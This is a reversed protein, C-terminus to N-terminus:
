FDQPCGQITRHLIEGEGSTEAKVMKGLREEISDAQQRGGQWGCLLAFELEM